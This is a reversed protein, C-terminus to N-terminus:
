EFANVISSLFKNRDLDEHKSFGTRVVVLNKSPIIYIFQGDHGQCSYMDRPVDPYDGSKNLWFFSGYKGDSGKAGTTVYKVWGDPLIQEGLWNGNNLYLLGFRAYDRM